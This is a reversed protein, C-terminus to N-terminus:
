PLSPFSFCVLDEAYSQSQVVPYHTCVAPIFKFEKETKELPLSFSETKILALCFISAALAYCSTVSLSVHFQMWHGLSFENAEMLGPSNASPIIELLSDLREAGFAAGEAPCCHM